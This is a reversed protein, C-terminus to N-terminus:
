NVYQLILDWVSSDEMGLSWEAVGALGNEKIVKLKEELSQRDELWIRYTGGDAEWEAYNQMTEEDWQPQVGADAVISAAEDMGYATSTIKNPYQAAETGAEGALEEETKPTEFWLRTFFPVGAVLKEAPVMQLADSVGNELYTGEAHIAPLTQRLEQQYQLYSPGM